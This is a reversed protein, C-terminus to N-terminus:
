PAACRGIKIADFSTVDGGVRKTTYYTVFGKNTFPDRLIQLGVRDAITYARSFDGYVVSLNGAGEAPMDDMFIVPKGLLQLTSQGNALLVPSFFYNDAGKQKLATGFTTRKMGWVARAQYDEKLANQLTIFGDATVAAAAGSLDSSCV